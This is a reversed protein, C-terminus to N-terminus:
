VKDSLTQELAQRDTEDFIGEKIFRDALGKVTEAKTLKGQDVQAGLQRVAYKRIDHKALDDLIKNITGEDEVARELHDTFENLAEEFKKAREELDQKRKEKEEEERKKREAEKEEYDRANEEQRQQRERIYWSDCIGFLVLPMFVFAGLSSELPLKLQEGQPYNKTKRLYFAVRALYDVLEESGKFEAVTRGFLGRDSSRIMYLIKYGVTAYFDSVRAAPDFIEELHESIYQSLKRKLIVDSGSNQDKGSPNGELPLPIIGARPANLFLPPIFDAISVGSAFKLRPNFVQPSRGRGIFKKEILREILRMQVQRIVAPDAQRNNKEFISKHFSEM